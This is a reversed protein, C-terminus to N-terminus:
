RPAERFYIGNNQMAMVIDVAKNGHIGAEILPGYVKQLTEEDHHMELGLEAEFVICSEMTAIDQALEESEISSIVEHGEHTVFRGWFM